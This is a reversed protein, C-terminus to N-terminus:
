EMLMTRIEANDCMDFPIRGFSNKTKRNGGNDLIIKVINIDEFAAAIHLPTDGNEDAMNVDAGAELLTSIADIDRWM